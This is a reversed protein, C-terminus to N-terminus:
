TPGLGLQNKCADALRYKAFKRSQSTQSLTGDAVMSKLLTTASGPGIEFANRVVENDIVGDLLLLIIVTLRKEQPSYSDFHKPAALSVKFSQGLDELLPAPAKLKRTLGLVVDIGQGDMEGFNLRELLKALTPNRWERKHLINSPTLGPLLGGPNEFEIRDAFIDIKVPQHMRIYDRHIVSNAIIERIARPEYSPVDERRIGSLKPLTWIEQEVIENARTLQDPLNGTVLHSRIPNERTKGKFWQIKISANNFRRCSRLDKAFVLFGALTPLLRNSSRVLIENDILAAISSQSAPLQQDFGRIFRGLLDYDLDQVGLDELPTLDYSYEQDKALHARIEDITMPVTQPGSRKYCGAGGLPSRDKLFVPKTTGELVHICLLPGLQSELRHIEIALPPEQCDRAVNSLTDQITQESSSITVKKFRSVGFVFLGGGSTNGMANVHERLREKEESVDAKFDLDNQEVRSTLCEHLRAEWYAKDKRM